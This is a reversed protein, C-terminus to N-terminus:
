ILGSYEITDPCANKIGDCRDPCGFRRRMLRTAFEHGDFKCQVNETDNSRIPNLQLYQGGRGRFPVSTQCKLLPVDLNGLLLEDNMQLNGIAKWITGKIM